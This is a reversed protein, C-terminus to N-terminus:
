SDFAARVDQAGLIRVVLISKDQTILYYISHSGYVSRRYGQRIADVANYLLPNAAIESFRHEMGVIYKEAQKLGFREIGYEFIQQFDADAQQTLKYNAM